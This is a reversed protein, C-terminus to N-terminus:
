AKDQTATIPIGLFSKFEASFLLSLTVFSLVFLLLTKKM